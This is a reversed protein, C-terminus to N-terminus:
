RDIYQQPPGKHVPLTIDFPLTKIVRDEHLSLALDIHGPHEPAHELTVVGFWDMEQGNSALVGDTCDASEANGPVTVESHLIAGSNGLGAHTGGVAARFDFQIMANESHNTSNASNGAAVLPILSFAIGNV